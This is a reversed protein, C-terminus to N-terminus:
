QVGVRRVVALRRRRRPGLAPLRDNDGGLRVGLGSTWVLAEQHRAVAAVITGCVGVMVALFVTSDVLTPVANPDAPAPALATMAVLLLPRGAGVAMAWSRPLPRPQRRVRPVGAPLRTLESLRRGDM